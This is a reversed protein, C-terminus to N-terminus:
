LGDYWYLARLAEPTMGLCIALPGLLRTGLQVMADFYAEVDHQFGPLEPWRNVGHLPKGALIDPDDARLALGLNFSEKLDPLNGPYHTQRMPVYGRNSKDVRVSM